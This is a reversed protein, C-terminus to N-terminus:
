LTIPHESGRRRKKGNRERPGLLVMGFRRNKIADVVATGGGFLQPNSRQLSGMPLYLFNAPNKLKMTYNIGQGREGYRKGKGKVWCYVALDLFISPMLWQQGGGLSNITAEKSVAWLYTGFILPILLRRGGRMM